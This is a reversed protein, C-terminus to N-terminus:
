ITVCKLCIIFQYDLYAVYVLVIVIILHTMFKHVHHYYSLCKVFLTRPVLPAGKKGKWFIGDGDFYFFTQLEFLYQKTGLLLMLPRNTSIAM